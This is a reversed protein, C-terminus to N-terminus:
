KKPLVVIGRTIGHGAGTSIARWGSVMVMTPTSAMPARFRLTITHLAQKKLPKSALIQVQDGMRTIPLTECTAELLPLQLIAGEEAKTSYKIIGAGGPVLLKLDIVEDASYALKEQECWLENHRGGSGNMGEFTAVNKGSAAPPMPVNLLGLAKGNALQFRVLGNAPLKSADVHTVSQSQVGWPGALAAGSKWDNVSIQVGEKGLNALAYYPKGNQWYEQVFVGTRFDLGVGILEARATSTSAAGM